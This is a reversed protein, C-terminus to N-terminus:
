AADDDRNTTDGMPFAEGFFSPGASAGDRDRQNGDDIEGVWLGLGVETVAVVGVVCVAGEVCEVGEVGGVDGAGGVGEVDEVGEVGGVGVVCVVDEVHVVDGGAAWRDM